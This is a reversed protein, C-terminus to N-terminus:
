NMITGPLNMRSSQESVKEAGGEGIVYRVLFIRQPSNLPDHDAILLPEVGQENLFLRKHFPDSLYYALPEM